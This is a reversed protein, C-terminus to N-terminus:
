MIGEKRSGACISRCGPHIRAIDNVGLQDYLSVLPWFRHTDQAELAHIAVNLLVLDAAQVAAFRRMQAVHESRAAHHWELAALLTVVSSSQDHRLSLIDTALSM